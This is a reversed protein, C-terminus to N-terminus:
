KMKAHYCVTSKACGVIDSVEKYTLGQKLLKLIEERYGKDNPKIRLNKERTRSLTIPNNMNEKQTAWRLNSVINNKENTDIHDIYPKDFDNKIFAIAVLRHIYFNKDVGNNSFKVALYKGRNFVKKQKKNDFRRVNGLNSVEYINDYGEIFDIVKWEEKM